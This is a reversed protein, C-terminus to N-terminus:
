VSFLDHGHRVILSILIIFKKALPNFYQGSIRISLSGPLGVIQIVVILQVGAIPVSVISSNLIM